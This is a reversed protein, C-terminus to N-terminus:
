VEVLRDVYDNVHQETGIEQPGSGYRRLLHYPPSTIVCDISDPPLIRLQTLAEGRLVRGLPLPESAAAVATRHYRWNTITNM